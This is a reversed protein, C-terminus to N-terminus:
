WAYDYEAAMARAREGDASIDVPYHEAELEKSVFSAVPVDHAAILIRM